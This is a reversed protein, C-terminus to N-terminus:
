HETTFKNNLKDSKLTFNLIKGIQLNYFPDGSAVNEMIIYNLNVNSSKAFIDKLLENKKDMLNTGAYIVKTDSTFYKFPIKMATFFAKMMDLVTIDVPLMRVFKQGNLM